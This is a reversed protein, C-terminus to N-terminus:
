MCIGLVCEYPSELSKCASAQAFCVREGLSSEGMSALIYVCALSARRRKCMRVLSVQAGWALSASQKCKSSRAGGTQASKSQDVELNASSQVGHEQRSWMSQMDERARIQEAQEPRSWTQEAHKPRRAVYAGCAEAQACRARWM